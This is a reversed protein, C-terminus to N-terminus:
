TVGIVVYEYKPTESADQNKVYVVGSPKFLAVEGAHVVIDADFSSVYDADIEIDLDIAKIWIMHVTTVDGLDLAEATDATALTRYNYTGATPTTTVSFKEKVDIEEGLGTLKLQVKIEGAAAM